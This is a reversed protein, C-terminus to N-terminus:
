DKCRFTGQKAKKRAAIIQLSQLLFNKMATGKYLRKSYCTSLVHQVQPWKISYGRLVKSVKKKHYRCLKKDRVVYTKCSKNACKYSYVFSSSVRYILDQCRTFDELPFPHSLARNFPQLFLTFGLIPCLLLKRMCSEKKFCANAWRTFTDM